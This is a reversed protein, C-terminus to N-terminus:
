KLDENILELIESAKDHLAKYYGGTLDAKFRFQLIAGEITKFRTDEHDNIWNWQNKGFIDFDQLNDYNYFRSLEPIMQMILDFGHDTTTNIHEHAFKRTTYYEIISKKIRDSQILDFKGSSTMELFTNDQIIVNRPNWNALRLLRLYDGLSDQKGHMLNLFLVLSDRENEANRIEAELYSLDWNLDESIRGLYVAEENRDLRSQNWNNVQLALLIGVMVLIIEGIAYKLYKGTKGDNLLQM